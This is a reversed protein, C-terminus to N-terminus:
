FFDSDKMFKMFNYVYDYSILPWKVNMLYSMQITYDNSDKIWVKKVQGSGISTIFGELGAQKEEDKMVETLAVEFEDDSVIDLNFGLDKLIDIIDAFPISHNNCPHFVRCEKPTKSLNIISKATYDIPSLEINSNLMSIPFKGITIFSKIRNIFGNSEFNIQFESDSNRAMLNGVRMIKVDLDNEVAAELVQREALFKSGIYQNDIKQGIFLDQETFLIDSPPYNNVSEGAISVTSIQVYKADKIKAFELGNIVGGLNIDEIDTGSSFHKVNAACNIITNIDYPILKKFDDLDTIDGDVIHLRDDFESFDDAFYYFLLSKLRIESTLTAKSRVFCYVDGTENELLDRLVHIGLFGTAGTLLVNGLSEDCEGSIFSSANNKKLLNNILIYDYDDEYSTTSKKGSLICGALLRPTPNDFVDGYNIDYGMNIAEITIKTVLLSNGGIEFFNDTVGVKDIGLVEQFCNAFFAEIDNEPAVYETTLEPEPLNKIDTKGNSTQPLKKLQMFVTPVMYDTVRSSLYEKLDDIAIEDNASYYACLHDVNNVKKIVVVANTIGDYNSIVSSIEEPEIRLGRLKIQNDMRGLIYIEDNRKIAYDGSKYYKIGNITLYVEDTKERNKYYGNTVGQGGIYLEGMVGDPLLKDDIDRVETIYNFLAKGVSIEEDFKMLKLNSQVTTETPGYSNYVGIDYESLIELLEKPFQEGGVTVAKLLKFAEKFGDYELYQLLRSPTFGMYDPNTNEILDILEFIDKTQNDDALILTKGTVFGGLVELISADFSVTTISLIREINQYFKYVPNKDTNAFQNTINENSVMVGKPNGTSGSTYIMYVLDDPNVAVEPNTEDNSEELLESISVANEFNFDSIVYDADSNEFIYNVREEPYDNALPVFACGAKIIGFMAVIIDSTRPLMHLIKSGSEVGRNILAHAVRNAKRNLEDYTLQGDCSILALKDRNKDVTKEFLEYLLKTEVETFEVGADESVIALDKLKLEDLKDKKDMFQDIIVKISEAFTDIYEKSYIADNYDVRIVFEDNIEVVNLGLKFRLSDYDMSERIYTKGGINIDEIIKGHFAYLFDPYLGYKNAVEVYNFSSHNLVNLWTDAIFKFYDEINMDRDTKFAIPLTKVLMGITNQYKYNDRGNFLTSILINKNSVYKTLTVTAASLFLINPSINKENCFSELSHKDLGLTMSALKANEDDGTLDTTLITGEDFDAMM